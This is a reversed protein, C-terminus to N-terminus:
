SLCKCHRSSSVAPRMAPCDTWPPQFASSPGTLAWHVFVISIQKQEGKFTHFNRSLYLPTRTSNRSSWRSNFSKLDKLKKQDWCGQRRGFDNFGNFHFNGRHFRSIPLSPKISQSSTDKGTQHETAVMPEGLCFHRGLFTVHLVTPQPHNKGLDKPGSPNKTGLFDRTTSIQPPLEKKSLPHAWIKKPRCPRCFAEHSFDGGSQLKQTKSAQKCPDNFWCLKPHFEFLQSNGLKEWPSIHESGLTIVRTKGAGWM